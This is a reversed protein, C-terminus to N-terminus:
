RGYLYAVIDRAQDERVGVDPMVTKPSYRKPDMIWKVDNEPTNPLVGAITSDATRADALSPGVRGDAGSVGPIVHCSGCGFDKLLKKGRDANGGAIVERHTGGGCGALLLAAAALLPLARKV